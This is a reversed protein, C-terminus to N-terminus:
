DKVKIRADLGIYNCEKFVSGLPQVWAMNSLGIKCLHSSAKHFKRCFKSINSLLQLKLTFVLFDAVLLIV